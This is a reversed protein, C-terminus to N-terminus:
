GTAVALAAHNAGALVQVGVPLGLQCIDSVIVTMAAVIEAPVDRRLYPADGMNEVIIADFGAQVLISAEDLAKQRVNQFSKSSQPTGPLPELHVMGILSTQTKNLWGDTPMVNM